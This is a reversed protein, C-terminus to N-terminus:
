VAHCSLASAIRTHCASVDSSYQVHSSVCSGVTGEEWVIWLTSESRSWETEREIREENNEMEGLGLQGSSLQPSSLQITKLGSHANHSSSGGQPRFGQDQHRHNDTHIRVPWIPFVIMFRVPQRKQKDSWLCYREIGDWSCWRSLKNPRARVCQKHLM